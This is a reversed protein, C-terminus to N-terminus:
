RMRVSLEVMFRAVVEPNQPYNVFATVALPRNVREGRTVSEGIMERVTEGCESVFYVDAEARRLFEAEFRKFALSLRGPAKQAHWYGHLGGAIDAGAAFAGFYLSNLHNKSRRRLPICVVVRQDNIEVLRPRLYGIVPVKFRGFVWLFFRFRTLAKM